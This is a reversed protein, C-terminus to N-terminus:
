RRRALLGVVLVAAGLLFPLLLGFGTNALEVDDLAGGAETRASAVRTVAGRVGEEGNSPGTVAAPELLVAPAIMARVLEAERPERGDDNPSERDTPEEKEDRGLEVEGDCPRSFVECAPEACSEDM